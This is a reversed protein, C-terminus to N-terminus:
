KGEAAEVNGASGQPASLNDYHFLLLQTLSGQALTQSGLGFM